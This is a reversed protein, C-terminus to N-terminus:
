PYKKVLSVAIAIALADTADDILKLDPERLIIKIMKAVARKDARGDGAIASKIQTPTFESLNVGREAATMMIIGRAQSVAIATKQNKTFYLKEVGMEEPQYKSILEQLRGKVEILAGLDNPSQIKLIGAELFRLEQGMKEIVGFGIRRSGPDIGLIIM